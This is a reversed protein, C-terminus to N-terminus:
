VTELKCELEKILNLCISIQKQAREIEWKVTDEYYYEEINSVTKGKHPWRSTFNKSAEEPNLNSGHITVSIGDSFTVCFGRTNTQKWTNM